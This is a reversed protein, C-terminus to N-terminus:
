GEKKWIVCLVSAVVWHALGSLGLWVRFNTEMGM